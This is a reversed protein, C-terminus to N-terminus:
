YYKMEIKKKGTDTETILAANQPPPIHIGPYISIYMKFRNWSVQSVYDYSLVHVTLINLIKIFIIQQLNNKM